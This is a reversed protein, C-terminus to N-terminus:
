NQIGTPTARGNVLAILAELDAQDVRSDSNLDGTQPLILVEQGDLARQLAAIDNDDVRGDYNV